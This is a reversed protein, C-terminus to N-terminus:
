IIQLWLLRNYHELKEDYENYAVHCIAKNVGDIKGEQRDAMRAPDGVNPSLSFNEASAVASLELVPNLFDHKFGADCNQDHQRHAKQHDGGKEAAPSIRSKLDVAEAEDKQREQAPNELNVAVRKEARHQGQRQGDAHQGAPATIGQEFFTTSEVASCKPSRKPCRAGTIGNWFLPKPSATRM